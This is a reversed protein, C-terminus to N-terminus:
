TANAGSLTEKHVLCAYLARMEEESGRGLQTALGEIIAHSAIADCLADLRDMARSQTLAKCMVILTVEPSGSALSQAELLAYVQVGARESFEALKQVLKLAAECSRARLTIVKGWRLGALRVYYNEGRKLLPVEVRKEAVKDSVPRFQVTLRAERSKRVKLIKKKIALVPTIVLALIFLIKSLHYLLLLATIVAVKKGLEGM